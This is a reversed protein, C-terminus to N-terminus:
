QDAVLRGRRTAVIRRLSTRLSVLSSNWLYGHGSEKRGKQSQGSKFQSFAVPIITASAFRPDPVVKFTSALHVEDGQELFYSIWNMAIPSRGDCIILIRM